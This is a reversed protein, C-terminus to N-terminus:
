KGICFKSFIEDLINEAASKGTVEGCADLAERLELSLIEAPSNKGLEAVLRELAEMARRLAIGQRINLAILEGQVVSLEGNTTFDFIKDRLLALGEGTMASVAVTREEGAPSLSTTDGGGPVLDAKNVVVIRNSGAHVELEELAEEQWGEVADVVFLVLDAAGAAERGKRIGESEIECGTEALGATDELHYTLGGIHIRERLVDRTTGPVPSVIAREEGLLANYLSSKGANRPGTITIRIGRRLKSGAVESQLLHAILATYTSAVTELEGPDYTEIDEESFDISAEVLALKSRLGKEIMGIKGSLLGKLHLLAVETQLKTESAILDAVAEAQVLDLKGSLFARRTFEGPGALRAGRRVIEEIIASVVQMSGHCSIEASDEGTYSHPGHFVATVVDDLLQPGHGYLPCNHLTRPEWERAGPAMAELIGIAEPGSIRIVAIGSSGPPTSLAVITDGHM